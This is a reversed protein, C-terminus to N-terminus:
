RRTKLRPDAIPACVARKSRRPSDCADFAAVMRARMAQLRAIKEDIAALRGAITPGTNACTAADREILDLFTETESLTFGMDQMDHIFALREASNAAYEKYRNDRRHTVEILGRREYYRITDRTVGARQVLEGILM